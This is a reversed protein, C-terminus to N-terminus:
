RSDMRFPHWPVGCTWGLHISRLSPQLRGLVVIWTQDGAAASRITFSSDRAHVPRRSAAGFVLPARIELVQKRRGESQGAAALAM